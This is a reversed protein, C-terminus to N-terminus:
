KGADRMGRYPPFFGDLLRVIPETVPTVVGMELILAIVGAGLLGFVWPRGGPFDVEPWRQIVAKAGVALLILLAILIVPWFPVFAKMSTFRGTDEAWFGYLGLLNPILGFQPDASASYVDLDAAGTRAATQGESGTGSFLPILWYASAIATVGVTLALSKTLNVVYQRDGRRRIAFAIAACILLLASPVLLHIDVVGLATL